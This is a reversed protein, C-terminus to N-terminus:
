KCRNKIKIAMLYIFWNTWLVTRCVAAVFKDKITRNRNHYVSIILLVKVETEMQKLTMGLNQFRNFISFM